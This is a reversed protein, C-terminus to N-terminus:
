GAWLWPRCLCPLLRIVWGHTGTALWHVGGGITDSGEGIRLGSSDLTVVLLTLPEIARIDLGGTVNVRGDRILTASVRGGPQGPFFARLGGINLPVSTEEWPNLQHRGIVRSQDAGNSQIRLEIVSGYQHEAGVVVARIPACPSALVVAVLMMAIIKMTRRPWAVM